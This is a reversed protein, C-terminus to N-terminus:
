SNLPMRISELLQGTRELVANEYINISSWGSVRQGWANISLQEGRYEVMDDGVITATSEPHHRIKVRDGIRVTGLAIMDKLRLRTNTVAPISEEAQTSHKAIIENTPLVAHREILSYLVKARDELFSKFFFNRDPDNIMEPSILHSPLCKDLDSNVKEQIESM